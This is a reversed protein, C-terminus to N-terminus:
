TRDAESWRVQALWVLGFQIPLAGARGQDNSLGISVVVGLAVSEVRM